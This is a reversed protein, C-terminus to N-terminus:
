SASRPSSACRGPRAAPATPAIIAVGDIREVRSALAAPTRGDLLVYLRTPDIRGARFAATDAGIRRRTAAAERSVYFYRVPRCAVIARWGIEEMLQLDRFPEAPEFEVTAAGALLVAWRPDATRRFPNGRDDARASTTRIAALMPALDVIQLAAAAALLLTARRQRLVTALAAYALAYTVPWALRGAARVPDLADILAPPLHATALARGWFLPQPGIAILLLVAFAPLLWVLGALRHDGRRRLWLTAAGLVLAIMGAGLYQLGEFGRGHDERSSPLLATFGPNAPNWWADLAVPFAGYTGTSAYGGGFVGLWAEIGVVLAAVAAMGAITRGREGGQGLARLGASAWIAAAMLLLYPHVLAAVGLVAAWWGPRRARGPDTFVWLAWLILWQACLSAHGYRNFLVPLGALLATAILAALPERAHRRVLLWAFGVQLLMCAFLWLGVLQVGPPLLRAAPGTLLGLLPVSDTFLLGTGEPAMLLPQHLSPWGGARLYSALGAATVGRDRGDLLWGINAPDLVAWHMWAGFLAAAIGLLALPQALTAPDSLRRRM